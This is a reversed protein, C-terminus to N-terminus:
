DACVSKHSGRGDSPKLKYIAVVLLLFRFFNLVQLGFAGEFERKTINCILDQPNSAVTEESGISLISSTKPGVAIM